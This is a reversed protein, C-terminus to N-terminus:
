RIPTILSCFEPQRIQREIMIEGRVNLLGKPTEYSLPAFRSSFGAAMIIANEVRYPALAEIGRSTICGNDILGRETLRQYTNEIDSASCDLKDALTNTDVNKDKSCSVLVGFEHKNLEM